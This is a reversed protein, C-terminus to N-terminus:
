PARTSHSTHGHTRPNGHLWLPIEVLTVRLPAGILCSEFVCRCQRRVGLLSCPIKAPLSVAGIILYLLTVMPVSNCPTLWTAMRVASM